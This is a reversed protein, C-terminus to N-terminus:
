GLVLLGVLILGLLINIVMLAIATRGIWVHPLKFGRKYVFVFGLVLQIIVLLIAALGVWSHLVRFQVGGAAAIMYAALSVGALLLVGAGAAILKHARFWWPKKKMFVASIALAGLVVGTVMLAAHYPWLTYSSSGGAVSTTNGTTVNLTTTLYGYWICTATVAITDGDAATINYTYTFRHPDPQSTYLSTGYAAGNRTIEVKYIYHSATDSSDHTISVTLIGTAKNFALDVAGPPTAAAPGASTGLVFLCLLLPAICRRIRLMRSM